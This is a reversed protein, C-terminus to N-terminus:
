FEDLKPVQRGGENQVQAFFACTSAEDLEKSRYINGIHRVIVTRDVGFLVRLQQQTLWVTERDLHVDIKITDVPNDDKYDAQQFDNAVHQRNQPV